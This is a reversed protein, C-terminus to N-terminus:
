IHRGIGFEGIKEDIILRIEGQEECFAVFAFGDPQRGKLRKAGTFAKRKTRCRDKRAIDYTKKRNARFRTDFFVYRAPTKPPFNASIFAQRAGNGELRRAPSRGDAPLRAVFASGAWARKKRSSNGPKSRCNSLTM